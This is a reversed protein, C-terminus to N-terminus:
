SDAREGVGYYKMKRVITSQSIELAAAMKRTFRYKQWANSILKKELAEVAETLPQIHVSLGEPKIIVEEKIYDSLDERTILKGSSLVAIREITNELERTNGPWDYSELLVLAEPSFRLQKNFKLNFVEIFHNILPIIDDRRERLPPIHIPVVNLRYYLDQRFTGEQVMKKLNKNTASIIRVNIKIPKRGGIRTIEKEQIARLLKVQLNLSIDGIEDLFLTGGEAVEFLGQKGGRDAGTFSGKEYGFLESELLNEPIASCVATILPKNVSTGANHIARSIIEKGVGSEGTILVTSDVEGLRLAFKMIDKMQQSSIIVHEMKMQQLRLNLVEMRYLENRKETQALRTELNKLDAMDRLTTVVRTINGSEDFIPTGTLIVEKGNPLTEAVSTTARSELVLTSVSKNYVGTEVLEDVTKGTTESSKIGTIDEFAKNTRLTIGNGDTIYIGDTVSDIITDLERILQQRNALEAELEKIKM